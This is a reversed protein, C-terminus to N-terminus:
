YPKPIMRTSEEQDLSCNLVYIADVHSLVLKIFAWLVIKALKLIKKKQLLIVLEAFAAEMPSKLNLRMLFLILNKEWHMEGEIMTYKRVMNEKDLEDLRHKVFEFPSGKTFNVKEISEAGGDGQLLDVSEVFQPLLKPVLSKSDVTSAKFLRIPEIPSNLEQTFTTVGM